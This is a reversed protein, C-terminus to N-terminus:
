DEVRRLVIANKKGHYIRATYSPRTIIRNKNRIPIMANTEGSGPCVGAGEAGGDSSCRTASRSAYTFLESRPASVPDGIADFIAPGPGPWLAHIIVHAASTRKM